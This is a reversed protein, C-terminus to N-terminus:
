ARQEEAALVPAPARGVATRRGREGGAAGPAGRLAPWAGALLVSVHLGAFAVNNLTAPGHGRALGYAAAALLVAVLALPVAVARPQRGGAGQKPTVVFRGRRGLLTLISAQVHIWASATQLAYAAFSYSGAGAVAVTWLAIGFYPAFHLLFQDATAGALPQAGTFIRVVPFAIYALLTWGSLFHMSSLLYQVRVRWPLRARVISPIASLCGRAWRQQQGVYAAMDEPGLGDALVRPLYVSRWGREHLRLSLEFDETLSREPFGGADVLAARRFVVNTGCCFMADLGDKGRAIAGFFLAQQSWAAAAVGGRGANAYHQPTQVFGVDADDLHGLTAELLEPRPVHDCDLVVVFPSTTQALADNVNGAKAGSRRARRLYAAGHRAALARMADSGGDDLLAVHVHAGRLRAAAAITPEVIAVSEGYVPVLVDVDPPPGDHSRPRRGRERACTWWFGIAQVVNFLEVAVLLGYLVPNGVRQPELLWAFYLLVLPASVAILLRVRRRHRPGPPAASWSPPALRPDTM